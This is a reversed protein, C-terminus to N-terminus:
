LALKRKAAMARVKVEPEPHALAWQIFPAVQPTHQGIRGVAWVCLAQADRHTDTGFLLANRM